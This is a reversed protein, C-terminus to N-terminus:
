SAAQFSRGITTPLPRDIHVGDVHDQQDRGENQPEDRGDQPPRVEFPKPVVNLGKVDKLHGGDPQDHEEQDRDGEAEDSVQGSRVSRLSRTGFKRKHGM